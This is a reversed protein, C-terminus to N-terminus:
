SISYVDKRRRMKWSVNKHKSCLVNILSVVGGKRSVAVVVQVLESIPRDDGLPDQKRHNEDAHQTKMTAGFTLM